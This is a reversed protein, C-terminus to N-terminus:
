RQSPNFIKTLYFGGEASSHSLTFFIGGIAKSAFRRHFLNKQPSIKNPPTLPM